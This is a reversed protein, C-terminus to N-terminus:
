RIRSAVSTGLGEPSFEAPEGASEYAVIQHQLNELVVPRRLIRSAEEVVQATSAGALTMETFVQHMEVRRRQEALQSNIILTHAAETVSVFRVEAHLIVLPLGLREAAELFPAPGRFKRSPEIVLGSVQAASLSDVFRGGGRPGDPLAIGTTLLLEGGTLLHAIDVLETVHVWRVENNLGAKGALVEPLGAALEPLSLIRAVTPLM